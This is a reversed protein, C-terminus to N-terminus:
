GLARRWGVWRCRAMRGMEILRGRPVTTCGDLHERSGAARGCWRTPARLAAGCSTLPFLAMAGRRARHHASCLLFTSQQHRESTQVIRNAQQKCLITLQPDKEMKIRRLFPSSLQFIKVNRGNGAMEWIWTSNHVCM